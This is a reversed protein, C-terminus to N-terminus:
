RRRGPTSRTAPAPSTPTTGAGGLSYYAPADLGRYCLTTGGVGGEATHNPVFDVIVEIGAAHLASVMATFEEIERGPATAYRAEPALFGLTAYGWYNHRGRELLPPEDAIAAVPLLEVATVGTRQLHAVVAPHALGLYTGRHEPPV